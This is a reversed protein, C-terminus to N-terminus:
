MLAVHGTVSINLIALYKGSLGWVTDCYAILNMHNEKKKVYMGHM